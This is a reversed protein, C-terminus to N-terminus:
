SRARHSARAVKLFAGVGGINALDMAHQSPLVHIRAGSDAARELLRESLNDVVLLASGCYNCRERDQSFLAACKPCEYGASQLGEMYVLNSVTGENLFELTRGLGTVARTTGSAASILDGVLRAEQEHEFAEIVPAAKKLVADPSTEFPLEVQGITIRKLRKPMARLLKATNAHPGALILRDINENLIMREISPVTEGAPKLYEEVEGLVIKFLRARTDGILVVAYQDLAGM